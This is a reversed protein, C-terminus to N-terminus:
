QAFSAVVVLASIALCLLSLTYNILFQSNGAAKGHAPIVKRLELYPGIDRRYWGTVMVEENAFRGARCLAFFTRFFPMQNTYLVPVYGSDDQVVIDASFVYGPMARGLVRGKISVPIGTVPSADMRSLLSTVRDVPTFGTVPTRLLARATLLVGAVLGFEGALQLHGDDFGIALAILLSVFGLYRVPLEWWFRARAADVEPGRASKLATAHWSTPAGPLGSNELAAIRNIVLPHTSLKETFRGWPNIADWRMAALAAKPDIGAEISDILAGDVHDNAIGFSRVAQFRHGQRQLARAEKTRKAEILAKVQIARARDAQGIGYAIKVLASCLAEGDGTRACSAHDAGLERARSLALVALQSLLYGAYAVWGVAQAQGRQGRAIVYVYYLVMPIIAAVTMVIFDRNKVHGVEHAIVAALEREDLRELCGRSVWIRADGQTRGFAFANPTGDDILGLKVLPVGAARCQAAVVDGLPGAGVYGSGDPAHQFTQAPQVWQIIWPGLLYQLVVLGVSLVLPVAPPVSTFMVILGGVLALITALTFMSLASRRWVYGM